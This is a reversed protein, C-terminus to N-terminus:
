TGFLDPQYPGTTQNDATSAGSVPEEQQRERGSTTDRGKLMSNLEEEALVKVGLDRAKDLKSGANEGAILFDTNSSVSATVKAGARTLAQRAEDRTMAQLTGTLVVTKGALPTTATEQEFRGGGKPHIGLEDLRALWTRGMDSAFFAVVSSTVNKGFVPLYEADLAKIAGSKRPRALGREALANGLRSVEDNIEAMRQSLREKSRDDAGRNAASRPNVRRAEEQLQMLSLSDRLIASGAIDRIDRHAAALEEATSVGIEPIGIAFLWRALPLDRARNLADVTKRANKEGFVRPEDETGLNLTALDQVQLEFLDLPDAVLGSEVLREAVIRGVSEIDLANRATFHRLRRVLQAPCLLNECRWAVFQPDRSIPGGCSPCRHQVHEALDFPETGEPRRDAVVEVVAPIVEGAKEIIVTDGVRIDKRHIEDANHLTARSITSGGLPVPELEAVPTLIGTRGVQVTISLLKTEATESEYKFAKAWSPAKATFGLRERQSFDDVKIVAGDIDYSFEHRRQGLEEIRACIDDLDAAREAFQSARLGFSSLTQLLHTQSSLELGQVEGQAYFIATLPRRAVERPDLLKLSGATANRANAFEALGDDRRRRNMTSFADRDMFVEGRAEFVRPPQNNHLRLPISQITRVNATVDDGERGNGRTLARVLIGEEYRLSISVGDIKPEIVYHVQQDPLRDAVYKHFRRIEAVTYTNDLSLMPVAHRRTVFGEIPEGAVRRTPSDPTALEPYRKELDVLERYLRDYERDSIEPAAEVYYLRNHRELERRLEDVRKRTQEPVEGM